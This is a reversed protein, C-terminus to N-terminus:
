YTLRWSPGRPLCTGDRRRRGARPAARPQSAPRHPRRHRARRGDAGGTLKDPTAPEEVTFGFMRLADAPDINAPTGLLAEFEDGPLEKAQPLFHFIGGGGNDLIVLRLEETRRAAALGGLDHVLALDGLVAWTRGGAAIAAGTATSVM